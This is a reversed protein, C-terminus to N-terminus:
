GRDCEGQQRLEIWRCVAKVDSIPISRSVGVNCSQQYEIGVRQGDKSFGTVKAIETIHSMCGGGPYYKIKDYEKLIRLEDLVKEVEGAASSHPRDLVANYVNQPIPAVYAANLEDKRILYYQPETM